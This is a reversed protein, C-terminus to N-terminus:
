VHVGRTRAGLILGTLECRRGRGLPDRGTNGSLHKGEIDMGMAFTKDM